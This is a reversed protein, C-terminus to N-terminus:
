APQWDLFNRLIRLGNKQSKEPHFQTGVINDRGVAAVVDGYYDANAIIESAETGQAAYSHVFYVDDGSNLGAFVPHDQTFQLSNWGMHPIKAHSDQPKIKRVDGSLWGFGQTWVGHEEGSQVLLQMGVCIGLFPRTEQIAFTEIAEMMGPIRDIGDKCAQYAGVGPLIVRDASKLEEPDTCLSVTEGADAVARLSNAVSHLNGAGYDIVKIQM